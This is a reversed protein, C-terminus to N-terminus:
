ETKTRGWAIGAWFREHLFYTVLGVLTLVASLGLGQALNGMYVYNILTMLGFGLSQWTIAKILTRKNTEMAPM